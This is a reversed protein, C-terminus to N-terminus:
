NKLEEPRSLSLIKKIADHNIFDPTDSKEDTLIEETDSDIYKYRITSALYHLVDHHNVIDRNPGIIMNFVHDMRQDGFYVYEIVRKPGSPNRVPLVYTSGGQIFKVFSYKKTKITSLYSYCDLYSSRIIISSAKYFSTAYSYEQNRFSEILNSFKGLKYEVYSGKYKKWGVMALLVVGAYFVLVM